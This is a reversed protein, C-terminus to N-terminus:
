NKLHGIGCHKLFLPATKLFFRYFGGAFTELLFERLDGVLRWCFVRLEERLDEVSVAAFVERLDEAFVQLGGAFTEWLDGAFFGGFKRLDEVLRWCFGRFFEGVFSDRVFERLDGAFIEFVERLLERLDRAFLGKCIESLVGATEVKLDQLFKMFDGAFVGAFNHLLFEQLDRGCAKQLVDRLFEQLVRALTECLDSAFDGAFVELLVRVCTESLVQLYKGLLRRCFFRGYLRGCLELLVRAFKKRLDGAFVQLGGSFNGVLRWCFGRLVRGYFVGGLRGVDGAFVSCFRGCTEWLDGAFIGSIEEALGGAFVQLVGAFTELNGAFVHSFERALRRCFEGM